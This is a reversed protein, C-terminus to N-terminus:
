CTSAYQRSDSGPNHRLALFAMQNLDQASKAVVFHFKDHGTSHGHNQMPDLPYREIQIDRYREIRCIKPAEQSRQLIQM